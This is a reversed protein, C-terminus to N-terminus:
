SFRNPFAAIAAPCISKQGFTAKKEPRKIASNKFIGQKKLRFLVTSGDVEIGDFGHGTSIYFSGKRLADLVAAPTEKVLVM